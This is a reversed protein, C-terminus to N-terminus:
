SALEQYPIPAGFPVGASMTALSLLSTLAISASGLALARKASSLAEGIAPEGASKPLCTFSSVTFHAFTTFNAPAFGSQTLLSGEAQRRRSFRVFLRSPILARQRQGIGVTAM